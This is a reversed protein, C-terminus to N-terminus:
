DRSVLVGIVFGVILAILIAWFTNEQVTQTVQKRIDEVNHTELYTAMDDIRTTVRNVQEQAAEDLSKEATEQRVRHILERLQKAITTRLQDAGANLSKGLEQLREQAEQAFAQGDRATTTTGNDQTM